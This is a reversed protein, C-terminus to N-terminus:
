ALVMKNTLQLFLNTTESDPAMQVLPVGKNTARAMLKLDVSAIGLLPHGLFSQIADQPLNISSGVGFVLASLTTHPFLTERLQQLLMKASALAIREPRVCVLVYDAHDLVPRTMKSVGCGMDVVVVHGPKTLQEVMGTTQSPSLTPYRGDLNPRSLLLNLNDSYPALLKPLQQSMAAEPLQALANLGGSPIHQNLYLAIHGQMMDLDVLTTPLGFLAISAALNISVTTAGAGGRASLVAILKDQM